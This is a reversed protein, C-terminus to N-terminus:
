KEGEWGIGKLLDIAKAQIFTGAAWIRKGEYIYQWAQEATLQVFVIDPWKHLLVSALPLPFYKKDPEPTVCLIKEIQEDPLVAAYWDSMPVEIM